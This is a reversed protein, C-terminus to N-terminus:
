PMLKTKRKKFLLIVRAEYWTRPIRAFQWCKNIFNLLTNNLHEGGYKFLEANIGDPGTAKRNKM